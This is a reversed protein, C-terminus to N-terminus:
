LIKLFLFQKGKSDDNGKRKISLTSQQNSKKLLAEFHIKLGSVVMKLDNFEERSIREDPNKVDVDDQIFM